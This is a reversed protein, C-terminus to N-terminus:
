SLRPSTSKAEQARMKAWFRCDTDGWFERQSANLEDWERKRRREDKLNRGLVGKEDEAEQALAEELERKSIM